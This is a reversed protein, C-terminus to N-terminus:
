HSGDSDSNHTSPDPPPPPSTDTPAPRFRQESRYVRWDYTGFHQGATPPLIGSDIYQSTWTPTTPTPPLPTRFAPPFPPQTRRTPGLQAARRLLLHLTPPIHDAITPLRSRTLTHFYETLVVSYLNVDYSYSSTVLANPIPALPSINPCLVQTHSM